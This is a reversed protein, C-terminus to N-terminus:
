FIRLERNVSRRVREKKIVGNSAFARQSGERDRVPIM